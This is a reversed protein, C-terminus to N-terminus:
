LEVERMEAGWHKDDLRDDDIWRRLTIKMCIAIAFNYVFTIAFRHSTFLWMVNPFGRGARSVSNKSRGTHGVPLPITYSCREAQPLRGFWGRPSCLAVSNPLTCSAWLAM